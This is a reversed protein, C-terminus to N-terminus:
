DPGSVARSRMNLEVQMRGLASLLLGRHYEDVDIFQVGYHYSERDDVKRVLVGRFSFPQGVLSFVFQAVVGKRIPLDEDARILLGGGGADCLIIPRTHTTIPRGGIEIIQMQGPVNPLSLRFYERRNQRPSESM